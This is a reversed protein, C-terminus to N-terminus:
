NIFFKTKITQIIEKTGYENPTHCHYRNIYKDYNSISKNLIQLLEVMNFNYDKQTNLCPYGFRKPNVKAHEIENASMYDSNIGLLRKKLLVAETVASSDFATVLFAKYIYESTKYKLVKFDKLYSQHEELNYGPHITVIVEKNFEKSLKKLFKELYYYHKVVKEKPWKGRLEIEHRNNLSADLHVIYDESTTYRNELMLDYAMSNVLKIEKAWLLKKKFLFNKFKDKIISDYVEKDSMFRIDLKPTIGLNSLLVTVKKFFSQNLFFVVTKLIHNLSMKQTSGSMARGSYSIQVQQLKLKKVIMQIPFDFFHKNYNNIILIEKDQLFDSFEKINKPNFPIFNKPLDESPKLDNEGLDEEMYISRAFKPFFRLNQTNILYIKDFNKSLQDILVRAVHFYGGKIGMFSTVIAIYKKRNKM